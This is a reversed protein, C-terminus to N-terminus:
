ARVVATSSKVPLEPLSVNLPYAVVYVPRSLISPPSPVSVKFRAEVVAIASTEPTVTALISVILKRLTVVVSKSVDVPKVPRVVKFEVNPVVTRKSAAAVVSTLTNLETLV